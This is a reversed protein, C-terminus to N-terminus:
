RFLSTFYSGTSAAASQKRPGAVGQNQNTGPIYVAARPKAKYEGYAQDYAGKQNAYRADETAQRSGAAAQAQAASQQAQQQRNGATTAARTVADQFLNYGQGYKGQLEGIRPQAAVGTLAADFRSQGASYSGNGGYQRQMLAELGGSGTLAGLDDRLGRFGAGLAATNELGAPGTYANTGARFTSRDVPAMPKPAYYENIRAEEAKIQDGFTMRNAGIDARRYLDDLARKKAAALKANEAENQARADRDAQSLGQADRIVPNGRSDFETVSPDLMLGAASAQNFANEAGQLQAQLAAGRGDIGSTLAAAMQSAGPQNLRFLDQFNVFGTGKAM